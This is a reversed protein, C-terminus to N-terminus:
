AKPERAAIIREAEALIADHDSEYRQRIIKDWRKIEDSIVRHAKFLAIERDREARTDDDLLRVRHRGASSADFESASPTYQRTDGELVFRGTKYVKGIKIVRGFSKIGWSHMVEIVEVGPKVWDPVTKQNGM